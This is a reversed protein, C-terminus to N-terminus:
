DEDESIYNEGEGKDETVNEMAKNNKDEPKNEKNNNNQPAPKLDQIHVHRYYKGRSNRLDVIVPSIIRKVELPGIYKPALKVNFADRKSSLEYNKKWVHEGIKPRWERRQLNYHKEQKQFARALNIRVVKYADELHQHLIDPDEEEDTRPEPIPTPPALERGYNIYAPTYGTADHIATNFAFQFAPINRDWERHDKDVYQSIM